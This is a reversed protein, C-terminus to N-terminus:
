FSIRKEDVIIMDGSSLKIDAELYGEEVIKEADITQAQRTGDKEYHILRVTNKKAFKDFNGAKFIARVFTCQEGPAFSVMGPNRVAGTVIVETKESSLIFGSGTGSPIYVLDNAYLSLKEMSEIDLVANAVNVLIKHREGTQPDTRLIFSEQPTAWTTLGGTESIAQLISMEGEDPLRVKGPRVVAGYIYVSGPSRSVVTVAITAMVYLDKTLAEAIAVEAETENRGALMIRGLYPLTILGDPSVKGQYVVTPDEKMSVNLEDGPQIPIRRHRHHMALLAKSAPDAVGTQEDLNLRLTPRLAAGAPAASAAPPPPAAPADAAAAVPVAPAPAPVAGTVGTPGADSPATLSGQAPAPSVPAPNDSQARLGATSMIALAAAAAVLKGLSLM